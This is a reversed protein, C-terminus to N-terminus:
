AKEEGRFCGARLYADPFHKLRNIGFLLVGGVTPVERGQHHTTLQLSHLERRTLQRMPAFCESAARFDIAESNLEPMPEEDFSRGRVVRQLEAVAAADAQRNTSGVRVYVGAPFGPTKLYHPRKPQSFSRGGARAEKAM